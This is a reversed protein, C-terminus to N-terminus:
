QHGEVVLDALEVGRWVETLLDFTTAALFSASATGNAFLAASSEMVTAAAHGMRAVSGLVAAAQSVAGSPDCMLAAIWTLTM